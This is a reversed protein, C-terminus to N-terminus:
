KQETKYYNNGFLIRSSFKNKIVLRVLYYCVLMSILGVGPNIIFDIQWVPLMSFFDSMGRWILREIVIIQVLYVGLTYKGIQKSFDSIICKKSDIIKAISIILLSGAMGVFYQIPLLSWNNKLIDVDIVQYHRVAGNLAFVIIFFVSIAGLRYAPMIDLLRLKNCCYGTVFFLYLFNLNFLQGKPVVFVLLASLFLALHWRKILRLFVWAVVYCLFLCKLFWGCGFLESFVFSRNFGYIVFSVLISLLAFIITPWVLNTIKGTFFEKAPKALSKSSFYGSILMFLPMHFSYIFHHAASSYIPHVHGLCVLYIALCKAVDLYSVRM